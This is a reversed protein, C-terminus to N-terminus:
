PLDAAPPPWVVTDLPYLRTVHGMKRGPRVEDKGYLHLSLDAAVLDPWAAVDDGILNRMVARHHFATSGLPLGMTARVQQEFQSVRCAEITWHGSNHPRPAMENFLVGGDATVFFEVALLGVVQLGEALIRAAQLAAAATAAAVSAPAITLDLIHNRHRNEVAPWSAVQGDAGRAVIVSLEAAFPVFRELICPRCGLADFAASAESAARIVRQGKGDYGENRTKLVAPLGTQEFAAALDAAAAVPAFPAVAIGLDGALTKEALRDQAVALVAAGPRVPVQQELHRVASVPVNEFELTVADVAAAFRDLAAQDDWGAVTTAASVREAPSDADPCYVHTRYGLRAAALAVMRGLQGGGLVGITAGPALPQVPPM